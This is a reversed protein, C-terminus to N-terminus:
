LTHAKKSTEKYYRLAQQRNASYLRVNRDGRLFKQLNEYEERILKEKIRTLGVIGCKITKQIKM